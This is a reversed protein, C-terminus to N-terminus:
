ELGLVQLMGVVDNMGFPKVLCAFAGLEMTEDLVDRRASGTIMIVPMSPRLRRMERLAMLGDGNPMRIDLYVVDMPDSSMLGVAEVGNEACVVKHGHRTLVDRILERIGPEDDVVMINLAKM